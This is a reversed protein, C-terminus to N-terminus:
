AACGRRHRRHQSAPDHGRSRDQRRIRGRVPHARPRTGRHTRRRRRSHHARRHERGAHSSRSGSPPQRHARHAVPRLRVAGGGSAHVDRSRLPVTRLRLALLGATRRYLIHPIVYTAALMTLWAAACAEIRGGRRNRVLRAPLRHRAAGAPHAQAAFLDAPRARYRRRNAAQLTSKFYELAPRERPRLRLSELYLLQVLTVLALAAGALFM